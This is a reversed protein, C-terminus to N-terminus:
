TQNPSLNLPQWTKKKVINIFEKESRLSTMLVFVMIKLPFIQVGRNNRRCPITDSLVGVWHLQSQSIIEGEDM